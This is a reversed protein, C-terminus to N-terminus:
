RPATCRTSAAGHGISGCRMCAHRGKECAGSGDSQHRLSYTCGSNLNFGYCLNVGDIKGSLGTLEKPVRPEKLVKQRKTPPASKAHTGHQQQQQRPIFQLRKAMAENEKRLRELDNGASGGKTNGGKGKQGNDSRQSQSGLPMPNLFCTIRPELMIKPLLSDLPFENTASDCNL